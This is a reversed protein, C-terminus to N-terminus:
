WTAQWTTGDYVYLKNTDTDYVAEGEEAILATREATTYKPYLFKKSVNVSVLKADQIGARNSMFSYSSLSSVFANQSYIEDAAMEGTNLIGSSFDNIELVAVNTIDTRSAVFMFNSDSPLARIDVMVSSLNFDQKLIINKPNKIDYLLIHGEKSSLFLYDNLLRMQYGWNDETNYNTFTYKSKIFSSLDVVIGNSVTCIKFGYELTTMNQGAIVFKDGYAKVGLAIFNLSDVRSVLSLTGTNWNIKFLISTGTSRVGSNQGWTLLYNDGVDIGREQFVNGGSYQVGIYVINSYDTIDFTYINDGGDMIFLLNGKKIIEYVLGINQSRQGLLVPNYPDAMNWVQLLDPNPSNEYAILIYGDFYFGQQYSTGFDHALIPNDPDKIDYAYLISTSQSRVIATNKFVSGEAWVKGNPITTVGRLSLTPINLETNLNNFESNIDDVLRNLHGFRAPALDSDQRIDLDPSTPIFKNLAM